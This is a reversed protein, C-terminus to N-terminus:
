SCAKAQGPDPQAASRTIPVARPFALSVSTGHSGTTVEIKGSLQSAFLKMVKTGYGEKAKSPDYGRGNDSVTLHLQNALSRFSANVQGEHGNPFAYKFANTCAENFILGVIGCTRPDLILSECEASVKVPGGFAANLSEALAMLYPAIDLSQESGHDLLKHLGIIGEIRGVCSLCDGSRDKRYQRFVLSQVSALENNVRHQLERNVLQERTLLRKLEAIEALLGQVMQDNSM